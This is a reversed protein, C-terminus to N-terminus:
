DSILRWYDSRLKTLGLAADQLPASWAPAPPRPPPNDALFVAHFRRIAPEARFPAVRTSWEGAWEAKTANLLRDLLDRKTRYLGGSGRLMWEHHRDLGGEWAFVPRDMALAEAIANGFSEGRRRAHLVIDCAAFFDAKEQLDVIPDLFVARAHDVFPKTNVFAFWADSRTELAERVAAQAFPLDFEAYGGIRGFLLADGPAGIRARMEAAGPGAAPLSVVHPVAPSRGGDAWDALWASIYAQRLDSPLAGHRHRFITHLARRGAVPWSGPAPGGTTWYVVDLRLPETQRRIDQDPDIAAMPLDARRFKEVVAPDSKVPDYLTLPEVGLHARAAEAYAFVKVATGRLNLAGARFGLRM